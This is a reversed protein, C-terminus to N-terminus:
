SRLPRWRLLMRSDCLFHFLLARLLRSLLASYEYISSLVASNPLIGEYYLQPVAYYQINTNPVSVLFPLIVLVSLPHYPLSRIGLLLM